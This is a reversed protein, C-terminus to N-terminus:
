KFQEFYVKLFRNVYADVTKLDFKFINNTTELETLFALTTDYGLLEDKLNKTVSQQNREQYVTAPGYIVSNPFVKQVIYSAWIDDMRGVMPIMGYFPLVKKSVFTNQSNFPSMQKSGYYNYMDFKVIPKYIMRAISDVDPDGDWLNAQILCDVERKGEYMVNNRKHILEHPYGRHWLGSNNTVSLPDFYKSTMCTYNDISVKRNVKIDKGWNDYPINDDDVTAVIDASCKYAHLFGISRRQICKWPIVECLEPYLKLQLDPSLYILGENENELKIYEDHPTSTDGVVILKWNRKLLIMNNNDDYSLLEDQKNYKKILNYYKLLATTPSNITTTVIFVNEYKKQYERYALTAVSGEM